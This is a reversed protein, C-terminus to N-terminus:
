TSWSQAARLMRGLAVEDGSELAQRLVKLQVELAALAPALHDANDQAIALWMDPASGAIRTGDRGGPGLQSRVIGAHQLALALSTAALQPLHSSWALQADHAAADICEPQAGLRRWFAEACAIAAPQTSPAPCLFVRVGAFLGTRAASWGSRHDGTLPHAGVFCRGIGAAQCAAVISRKTSGLDTVLRAGGLRPAARAALEVAAGVPLAFVVIDAEEIGDLTEDMAHVIAGDTVAGGLAGRDRDYGLVRWGRGALERALSGGMLGLGLVAACRFTSDHDVHRM